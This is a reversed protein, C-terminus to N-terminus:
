DIDVPPTPDMYQVDCIMSWKNIQLYQNFSIEYCSRLLNWHTFHQQPDTEISYKSVNDIRESEVQSLWEDIFGGKEFLPLLLIVSSRVINCISFDFSM